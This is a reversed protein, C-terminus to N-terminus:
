PFRRLPHGRLRFELRGDLRYGRPFRRKNSATRTPATAAITEREARDVRVTQLLAWLGGLFFIIGFLLFLFSDAVIGGAILAIGLPIRVAGFIYFPGHRRRDRRAFGAALEIEEPSALLAGSRAAASIRTRDAASLERWREEWTPDDDGVRWVAVVAFLFILAIAIDVLDTRV